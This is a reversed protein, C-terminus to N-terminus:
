KLYQVCSLLLKTNLFMQSTVIRLETTRDKCDPELSVSWIHMTNSNKSRVTEQIHSCRYSVRTVKKWFKNYKMQYKQINRKWTWTNWVKHHAVIKHAWLIKHRHFWWIKIRSWTINDVIQILSKLKGAVSFDDVFVVMKMNDCIKTVLEPNTMIFPTIGLAYIAM